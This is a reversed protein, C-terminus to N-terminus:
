RRWFAMIMMMMMMAATTMRMILSPFSNPQRWRHAGSRTLRQANTCDLESLPPQLEVCNLDKGRIEIWLDFYATGTKVKLTLYVPYFETLVLPTLNWVQQPFFHFLHRIHSCATWGVWNWSEPPTNWSYARDFDQCQWYQSAGGGGLKAFWKHIQCCFTCLHLECCNDVFPTFCFVYKPPSTKVLQLYITM